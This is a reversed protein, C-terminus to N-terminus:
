LGCSCTAALRKGTSGNRAGRSIALGHGQEYADDEGQQREGNARADCGDRDKQAQIEIICGTKRRHVSQAFDTQLCGKLHIGMVAAQDAFECFLPAFGYGYGLHGLAEQLGKHRRFVFTEVPVAAHIRHTQQAGADVQEAGALAGLAAAGDGHLKGAVEKQGPLAGILALDAFDEERQLDFPLQGLVLDEFQVQVLDIEPLACIADGGRGRDIETAVQVFEVQVLHGDQGCQGLRGGGGVGDGARLPCLIAAVVHQPAHEFEPQYGLLLM